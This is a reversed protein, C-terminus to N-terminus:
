AAKITEWAASVEKFKVDDGHNQDPHYKVALRRYAKKCEAVSATATVGLVSRPDTKSLPPPTATGNRIRDRFAQATADYRAQADTTPTGRTEYNMQLNPSGVGPLPQGNAYANIARKAEKLKWYRPLVEGDLIPLYEDFTTAGTTPPNLKIIKARGCKSERIGLMFDNFVVKSWKFEVSM